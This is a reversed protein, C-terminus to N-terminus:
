QQNLTKHMQICLKHANERLRNNARLVESKHLHLRISLSSLVGDMAKKPHIDHTLTYLRVHPLAWCM